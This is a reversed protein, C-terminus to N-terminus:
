GRCLKPLPDTNPVTGGLGREGRPPCTPLPNPRPFPFSEGRSVSLPLPLARRRFFRYGMKASSAVKIVSHTNAGAIWWTTVPIWLTNM